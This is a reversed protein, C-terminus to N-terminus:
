EVIDLTFPRDHKLSPVALRAKDILDLDCDAMIIGVDEGGDALIEGWPSIILSHGYTKRGGEHEGCQGPAVIFCGTEIARARLLVEWHAKGTPVTFAAPVTIIQAGAKTLLRYLSAFRLDYCITMGIAGISTKALVAREGPKNADSERYSEGKELDVDFMHIKDYHAVLEGKDSFLFSRNLLQTDSIKMSMSGAMLWVSLEKALESFFPVGPHNDQTPASHLKETGPTRIHCSNEPTAIFQAGQGSADRVLTDIQTLNEEIVPGANTQVCAIKLVNSM